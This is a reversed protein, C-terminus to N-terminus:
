PRALRLKWAQLQRPGALNQRLDGVLGDVGGLVVPAVGLAQLLRDVSAVDVNPLRKREPTTDHTSCLKRLPGNAEDHRKWRASSGLDEGAYQQFLGSAM